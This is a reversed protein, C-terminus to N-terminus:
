HLVPQQHVRNLRASKKVAASIHLSFAAFLVWSCLQFGLGIWGFFKFVKLFNGEFPKAYVDTTLVVDEFCTFCFFIWGSIIIAMVSAVLVARWVTSQKEWGMAAEREEIAQQQSADFREVEPDNPLAEIEEAREKLTKNVYKVALLGIALQLVVSVTGLVGSLPGWLSEPDQGSKLMATGTLVIPIITISVPFTGIQMQLWPLRLVGTLVSTPWDPGGVLIAM